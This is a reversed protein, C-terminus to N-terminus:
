AKGAQAAKEAKEAEAAVAASRDSLTRVESATRIVLSIREGLLRRLLPEAGAVM